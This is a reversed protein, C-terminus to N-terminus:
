SKSPMLYKALFRVANERSRVDILAGIHGSKESRYFEVPVNSSKLKQFMSLANDIPVIEDATGHFFFVPPFNKSVYTIPSAQQYARPVEAPTGGLFYSLQSSEGAIKTLDCPAGGAAVAKISPRDPSQDAQTAALLCALHGGASYGYTGIRQPDIEYDKGNKSVWDLASQCDELQAPFPHKPAFRYSIAIAAFGNRALLLAHNALNSKSGGAWAGGHIVIVGPHPGQTTPLYIDALLDKDDREAVVINQVLQFSADNGLVLSPALFLMAFTLRFVIRVTYRRVPSSDQLSTADIIPRGCTKRRILSYLVLVLRLLAEIALDLSNRDSATQRRESRFKLGLRVKSVPESSLRDYKLM